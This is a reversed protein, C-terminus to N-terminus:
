PRFEVRVEVAPPLGYVVQLIELVVWAARATDPELQVIMDRSFRGAVNKLHLREFATVARKQEEASLKEVPLDLELTTAGGGHLEVYRGSAPHTIVATLPQPQDIVQQIVGRIAEHDSRMNEAQPPPTGRDPTVSPVPIQPPHDDTQAPGALGQDFPASFVNDFEVHYESGDVPVIEPLGFEDLQEAMGHKKRSKATLSWQYVRRRFYLIVAVLFVFPVSCIIGAFDGNDEYIFWTLMVSGILTLIMLAQAFRFMSKTRNIIPAAPEVSRDRTAYERISGGIVIVLTGIWLVWAGCCLWGVPTLEDDEPTYDLTALLDFVTDETAFTEGGYRASFVLYHEDFEIVGWIDQILDFSSGTALAAPHDNITTMYPKNLTSGTAIWVLVSELAALANDRTATQEAFTVPDDDTAYLVYDPLYLTILTESALDTATPITIMRYALTESTTIRIIHEDPQEKVLWGLPYAFTLTEDQSTFSNAFIDQAQVVRRVPTLNLALLILTIGIVAGTIGAGMLTHKILTAHRM